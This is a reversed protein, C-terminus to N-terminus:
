SIATEAALADTVRIPVGFIEPVRQGGMSASDGLLKGREINTFAMPRNENALLQNNLRRLSTRDMYFRTNPTVEYIVSLSDMVMKYLGTESAAMEPDDPDWQMRVAYRYDEVAVGWRWVYQTLYMFLTGQATSQQLGYPGAPGAVPILGMDRKEIGARTGKPYIFYVKRLEPTILWISRANSGANTGAMVYSSSTYGSTAPYRATLGHIREPDNAVSDYFLSTAGQNAMGSLHLMDETERWAAGGNLEVLREDIRSHAELIGCSEVYKRTQGTTSIVGSNIERWTASPLATGTQTIQHGTPLNGEMAPFDGLIPNKQELLNTIKATSGDPDLRGAINALTPWGDGTITAM